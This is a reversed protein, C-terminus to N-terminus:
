SLHTSRPRFAPRESREDPGQSCAPRKSQRSAHPAKADLRERILYCTANGNVDPMKVVHESAASPMAISEFMSTANKLAPQSVIPAPSLSVHVEVPLSVHPSVLPERQHSFAYQALESKSRVELYSAGRLAALALDLDALDNPVLVDVDGSYQLDAGPEDAALRAGGKLFIHRIAAADLADRVDKVCALV